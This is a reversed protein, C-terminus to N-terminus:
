SADTETLRWGHHLPGHGAGLPLGHRIAGSLYEKARAVAGAVDLGRALYCAIASSFTCGTGHTNRSPIRPANFRQLTKGDFLYDVAEDGELHGGKMLVYRPGLAHIRGAARHLDTENVIGLGSLVEAEPVNPTVLLALPLLRSRLAEQASEQLLHDGSKAVMVPDVVLNEIPHRSLSEAIAEIISASSLMGTKVADAGIDDLVADIQRAVTEPPIDHIGFVGLTNQATIATIASMGYCGLAAITKLDAQIGAGGGSDSGAITLVRPPIVLKNSSTL